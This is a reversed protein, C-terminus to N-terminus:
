AAEESKQALIGASGSSPSSFPHQIGSSAQGRCKNDPFRRAHCLSLPDGETMGNEWGTMGAGWRDKGNEGGQGERRGWGTRGATGVRDKGGDTLPFGPDKKEVGHRLSRRLTPSRRTVRNSRVGAKPNGILLTPFSLTLSTPFSLFSCAPIVTHSCGPWLGRVGVRERLPLPLMEADHRCRDTMGAAGGTM